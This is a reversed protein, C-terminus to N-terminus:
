GDVAARLAAEAKVLETSVEAYAKSEDALRTLDQAAVAEAMERTQAANGELARLMRDYEKRADGPPQLADLRIKVDELGDAMRALKQEAARTGGGAPATLESTLRTLPATAANYRDVFDDDTSSGCAAAGIAVALAPLVLLRRTPHM